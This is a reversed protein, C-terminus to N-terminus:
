GGQTIRWRSVPDVVAFRIRRLPADVHRQVLM